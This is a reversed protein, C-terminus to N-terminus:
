AAGLIVDAVDEPRYRRPAGRGMRLEVQRLRRRVVDVKVHYWGALRDDPILGAPVLQRLEAILAQRRDEKKPAEPEDM